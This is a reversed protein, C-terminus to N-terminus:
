KQGEKQILLKQQLYDPDVLYKLDDRMAQINKELIIRKQFSVHKQDILQKMCDNFFETVSKYDTYKLTQEFQQKLEAPARFNIIHLQRIL